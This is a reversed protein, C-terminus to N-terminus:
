AGLMGWKQMGATVGGGKGGAVLIVDLLSASNKHVFSVAVCLQMTAGKFTAACSVMGADVLRKTSM